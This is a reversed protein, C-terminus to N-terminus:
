LTNSSLLLLTPLFFHHPLTPPLKPCLISLHILDLCMCACLFTEVFLLSLFFFYKLRFCRLAETLLHPTHKLSRKRSREVQPLPHLLHPSLQLGKSILAAVWLEPLHWLQPPSSCIYKSCVASLVQQPPLLVTESKHMQTPTTLPM